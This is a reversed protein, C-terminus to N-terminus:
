VQVGDREHYAFVVWELERIIPPDPISSNRFVSPRKCVSLVDRIERIIPRLRTLLMNQRGIEAYLDKLRDALWYFTELM